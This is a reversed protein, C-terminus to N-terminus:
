SPTKESAIKWFEEVPIRSRSLERDDFKVYEIYRWAQDNGPAPNPCKISGMEWVHGDDEFYTISKLRIVGDGCIICNEDESLFSDFRKWKQYDKEDLMAFEHDYQIAVLQRMLLSITSCLLDYSRTDM